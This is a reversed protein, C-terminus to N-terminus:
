LAADHFRPHGQERLMQRHSTSSTFVNERIVTGLCNLCFSHSQVRTRRALLAPLTDTFLNGLRLEGNYDLCCPSVDGNWFITIHRPYYGYPCPRPSGPVVTFGAPLVSNAWNCVRSVYLSLNPRLLIHTEVLTAGPEVGKLEPYFRRGIVTVTEELKRRDALDVADAFGAELNYWESNGMLYLTVTQTNGEVFAAIRRTYEDYSVQAGRHAFAQESTSRYSIFWCDVPLSNKHKETLREGHTTVYLKYGFSNVMRCAQAFDPYLLPEGLNSFMVYEIEPVTRLAELARRLDALSMVGQPRSIRPHPCFDCAFNCARTLEIFVQMGPGSSFM